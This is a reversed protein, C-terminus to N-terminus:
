RPLAALWRRMAGEWRDRDFNWLKTHRAVEFREYTVLDPRVRALAASASSPVFGDDDSHLILIPRDLERARAVFDMRAIDLPEALGTFIRGWRSTFLAVVGRRILGPMRRLRVQFDIAAIWDVVPSELVVGTVSGGYSSRTLAQLVTAGGMSWGVLM